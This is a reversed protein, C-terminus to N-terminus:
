PCRKWGPCDGGWPFMSVAILLTAARSGALAFPFIDNVPVWCQLDDSAAIATVAPSGTLTMELQQTCGDM